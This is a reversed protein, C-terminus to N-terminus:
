KLKKRLIVGGLEYGQRALKRGLGRRKTQVEIYDCDALQREMFPVMTGTLDVGACRGEAAMIFGDFRGNSHQVRRLIYHMVPKGDARVEYCESGDCMDALSVNPSDTSLRMLGALAAIVVDAPVQHM